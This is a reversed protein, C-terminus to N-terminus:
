VSVKRYLLSCAAVRIRMGTHMVGFFYAHHTFTYLAAMAVVGTAHLYAETLSMSSGVVFFEMMWGAYLPALVLYM